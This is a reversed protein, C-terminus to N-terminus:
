NSLEIRKNPPLHECYNELKRNEECGEKNKSEYYFYRFM